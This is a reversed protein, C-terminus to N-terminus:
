GAFNYSYIKEALKASGFDVIVWGTLNAYNMEADLLRPNLARAFRYPHGYAFTGKTSLFHLAAEGVGENIGLSDTFARWKDEIGYEYRDQVWLLLDGAINPETYLETAASGDFFICDFPVGADPGLGAEDSWRVLLVLKGRAEGLTPLTDTLLWRDREPAIEDALLLQMDRISTDGYEHKVCFLVTETPHADLFAYCDALVDALRLAKNSLASPKCNTFGHTLKLSGDESEALRIDLYRYGAELQESVTLAQCKSFFALQAYAAGSNHTGPIAVCELPLEDELRGMWDASGPVETRDVNEALPLLFVAGAALLVLALLLIVVILVIKGLKAFFSKM